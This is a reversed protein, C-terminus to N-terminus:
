GKNWAIEDVGEWGAPPETGAHDHMGVKMVVLGLLACKLRVPTLEIGLLELVDEKTLQAIETLSKGVMQESLMSMSAQSIACGHGSFRLERVTDDDGVLVQVKIEDGCLPNVGESEFTFDDLHGFNQPHRYHELIYERYMDDM